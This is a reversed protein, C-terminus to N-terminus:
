IEIIDKEVDEYIEDIEKQIGITKQIATVIRCYTQIEDLSLTRGKRDKMWKECVRYGGIQYEWVAETVGEFYQNKNIYVRGTEPAYVPKEVANDGGGHFRAVPPDLERSKLLHLKILINGYEEMKLFLKYDTTFPIAPFQYILQKEYKKRYVGSYSLAYIYNIINEAKIVKNFCKILSYLLKDSINYIKSESDTLDLPDHKEKDVNIFLPSVQIIGKSSAFARADVISNTIFFHTYKEDLSVQRMFCFAINKILMNHMVEPRPRCHFGGSTGTYYTYRIDFPRYLIPVIHKKDLGSDILDKQANKIKWDQSDKGLNYTMRAIEPDSKSFNLVTQWVEEPTWKITLEDRATVIGVSNVPFIDTIKIFKEYKGSLAEDRPIFFYEESKPTIERWKIDEISHGFLSKYKNDRFGWLDSHFIRCKGSSGKKKIFLAISVGPRIDFVNEDKSGDPCKERKLSNGHLDLLYIENFSKMLSHRMGRFTPNDLYGHNTIFGLVGEGTKDIKWQAFRIFKVYDDQLWKPNKEKLPKGDVFYYARIEESIWDGFNSSHGSYPPNGLIVLIPQEKKVKGALHSEESLSAMGPLDTQALDEMELTNTLYLKVRDDAKLRCGLEELLFSMKIHGVAYPAMMLEFAYFNKLIHRRIFEERGGEGYKSVFEDVAIKAAEAPFTLTGAAPDLVTVNRGALGDAVGFKDKLIAHLSRVIFSVVPVPTFYVGRLERLKPDYESLFTEYFHVIPDDGKGDHFYKAFMSSIDTVSLIEAIDDIIWEMEEPLSGLSIFQFVDRLIGITPPIKDYALKRNFKGDTRTRAAFLGYTITQAYLDSFDEETLSKILYDRFAKYFGHISGRSKEEPKRLENAIVEEKLFRTRKALEIALGKADYVKPLSFSFFQEFLRSLDEENELPWSTKLKRAYPRTLFTKKYPNGNRYLRFETFNTLILNPFTHLYRKLQETGEIRDLDEVDPAKAEIYGTIHQEGDWVRFDPNGGETKKPLTTIHINTMKSAASYAELLEKLIPYFSEERADGRNYIESIKKLYDKFM